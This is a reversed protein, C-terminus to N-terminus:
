APNAEITQLVPESDVINVRRSMAQNDPKKCDERLKEVSRTITTIDVAGKNKCLLHRKTVDVSKHSPEFKYFMLEQILDCQM